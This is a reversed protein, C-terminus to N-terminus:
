QILQQQQNNLNDQHKKTKEHQSKGQKTIECSCIECTIKEKNREKAKEGYKQYHEKVFNPNKALKKQYQEKLFNPNRALEKQYKEKCLNPNKELEKQYREQNYNPNEKLKDQYWKKKYEALKKKLIPDIVFASLKNVCCKSFKNIWLQELAHLQNRDTVRYQKILIIKCNEIGFKDFLDFARCGGAKKDKWRKYNDKHEQWRARCEQQTSGVYIENSCNVIIKYVRGIM